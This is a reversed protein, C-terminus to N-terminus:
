VSWYQWTFAVVAVAALYKLRHLLSMVVGKSQTSPGQLAQKNSCLELVKQVIQLTNIANPDTFLIKSGIECTSQYMIKKLADMNTAEMMMRVAEGRRIKVVGTFVDHNNYCRALTGIAMVQPIACFNFVSKNRIHSMYELVDPAHQLANTILDNLCAVAKDSKEPLKFEDLQKAYHRWVAKPWFQRDEKIDELYDRIINTKQLFLGMSNALQENQGVIEDELKSAAFLRSLGIGVLGAVYHCYQDWDKLSDPHTELFVTMGEGMRRCIDSIVTQYVQELKRYEASVQVDQCSGWSVALVVSM